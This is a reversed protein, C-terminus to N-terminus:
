EGPGWLFVNNGTNFGLDLIEFTKDSFVFKSKLNKLTTKNIIEQEKTQTKIELIEELDIVSDNM